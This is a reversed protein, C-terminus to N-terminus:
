QLDDIMNTVMAASAHIASITRPAGAAGALREAMVRCFEAAQKMARAAERYQDATPRETTVVKISEVLAAAIHLNKMSM